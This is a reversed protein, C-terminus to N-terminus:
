VLLHENIGDVIAKAIIVNYDKTRLKKETEPHSIFGIEVLIAPMSTGNLVYLNDRYKVSRDVDGTAAILASQVVVALDKGANSKYLTEIGVASPGDSNCHISVFWDAGWENAIECRDSLAIYIETSRTLKVDYGSEKLHECVFKSVDLNVKSEDLKTPGQAGPDSGGHGPDVCIKM